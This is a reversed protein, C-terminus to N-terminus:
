KKKKKRKKVCKKKPKKGKKKIKKLKFGKKCKKKKAKTALPPVIPATVPCATEIPATANPRPDPLVESFDAASDNTDDPDDLLTACGRSITRRLASGPTVGAPSAVASQMDPLLGQDTIGGWAVCDPPAGDDYCVAGGGGGIDLGGITLDADVVGTDGILITSQNAGSAVDSLAFPGGTLVGNSNYVTVTHGGVLNQGAATMQLEIYDATAPDPFVERVKMLHFSGQAPIAAFLGGLVLLLALGPVLALRRM